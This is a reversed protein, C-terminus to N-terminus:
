AACHHRAPGGRLLFHRCCPPPLTSAHLWQHQSWFIALMQGLHQSSRSLVTVSFSFSFVLLVHITGYTEQLAVWNKIAGLYNGLHLKGTPQVGSLVRKRQAPKGNSAEASPSSNDVTDISSAPASPSPVLQPVAQVIHLSLRRSGLGPACIQPLRCLM